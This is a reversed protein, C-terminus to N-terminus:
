VGGKESDRKPTGCHCIGGVFGLNQKATEKHLASKIDHEAKIAAVCVGLALSIWVLTPNWHLFLVAQIILSIAIAIAVAAVLAFSLYNFAPVAYKRLRKM